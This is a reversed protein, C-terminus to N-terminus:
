NVEDGVDLSVRVADVISAGETSTEIEPNFAGPVKQAGGAGTAAHPGGDVLSEPNQQQKVPFAERDYEIRQWKEIAQQRTLGSKAMLYTILSEAGVAIDKFFVEQLEKMDHPQWVSSATVRLEMDEPLRPLGWSEAYVNHVTALKKYARAENPAVMPVQRARRRALAREKVKLATGTVASKEDKFTDSPLSEAVAWLRLIRDLQEAAEKIKPSTNLTSVTSDGPLVWVKGPGSETPIGRSDDSSVSITTHAEQKILYVLDNLVGATMKSYALRNENMPLYPRNRPLEDYVMMFPAVGGFPSTGEEGYPQVGVLEGAGSVRHAKWTLDDEHTWLEFVETEDDGTATLQFAVVHDADMTDRAIDSVHRKVNFPEFIRMQVCEHANSETFVIAVNRYLNRLEDVTAWHVDYMMRSLVRDLARMEPAQDELEVGNITLARVPPTSYVVSQSEVIMKLAAVDLPYPNDKDGIGLTMLFSRIRRQARDEYFQQLDVADADYTSGGPKAARDAAILQGMDYFTM